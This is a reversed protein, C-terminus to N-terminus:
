NHQDSTVRKLGWAERQLATVTVFVKFFYKPKDVIVFNCLVARVADEATHHHGYFFTSLQLLKSKVAAAITQMVIMYHMATM